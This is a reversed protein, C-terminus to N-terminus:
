RKKLGAVRVSRPNKKGQAAQKAAGRGAHAAHRTQRAAPKAITPGGHAQRALAGRAHRRSKGARVPAETASAEPELAAQATQEARKLTGLMTVGTSEPIQFLSAAPVALATATSNQALTIESPWKTRQALPVGRMRRTLMGLEADRWDFDFWAPAPLTATAAYAFNPIKPWRSTAVTETTPNMYWQQPETPTAPREPTAPVVHVIRYGRAKLTQLIKPLAAVTRAQIDHLLLIGKGHAELRKIALDYVRQPSIRHWDDAPFDASWVQIGKSELYSEIADNRGLGPIRFFPAPASGDALAATVSAIGDDIEKQARDIPMRQMNSPHNQTHTAVTHGADRVKRVGEPNARAQQGVLFFTAKICQAALIDLVQYSNKPIPGDDFTLVVEHDRLPLTKAYQMTGIVPYEHPDVVLTRSTGLADPHGPCDAASAQQAPILALVGLCLAVSIRDRHRVGVSAIM